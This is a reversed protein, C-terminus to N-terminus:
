SIRLRVKILEEKFFYFFLFFFFFFLPLFHLVAKSNFQFSCKSPTLRMKLNEDKEKWKHWLPSHSAFLFACSRCTKKLVVNEGWGQQNM